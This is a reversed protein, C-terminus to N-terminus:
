ACDVQVSHVDGTQRGVLQAAQARLVQPHLRRELLRVILAVYAMVWSIATYLWYVLARTRKTRPPVRSSGELTSGSTWM